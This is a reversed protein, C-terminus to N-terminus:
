LRSLREWLEPREKLIEGAAHGWPDGQPREVRPTSADTFSFHFTDEVVLLGLVVSTTQSYPGSSFGPEQSQWM